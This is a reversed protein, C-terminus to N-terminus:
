AARLQALAWSTGPAVIARQLTGSLPQGGPASGLTISAVTLAPTITNAATAVSSAEAAGNVAFRTLCSGDAQLLALIEFTDGYALATGTAATGVLSSGNHHLTTGKATAGDIRAKFYPSSVDSGITAIHYNTTGDIAGLYVGRGYFAWAQMPANFTASFADASRTLASAGTPIYQSPFAAQEVQAGWAFFGQTGGGNQKTGVFVALTASSNTTVSLWARYWGNGLTIIGSGTAAFGTGYTSPSAIVAGTSVNWQASAGNAFATTDAVDLQLQNLSDAKAHISVTYALSSASKSIQQAYGNGAAANTKIRDATTNGDPAVAVNLDLTAAGAAAWTTGFDDSRLIPSQRSGELLVGCSDFLGTTSNYRHHYRPSKYGPVHVRGLKDVSSGTGVTGGRDFSATQGSRIIPLGSADLGDRWDFDFLFPSRRTSRGAIRSPLTTPPM